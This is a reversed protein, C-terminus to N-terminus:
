GAAVAADHMRVVEERVQARSTLPRSWPLLVPVEQGDVTAAFVAQEDDLGVMRASTAGPVGGLRQCILLSDSAHDDNMHRLIAEVADDDLVAM